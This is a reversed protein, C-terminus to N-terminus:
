FEDVSQRLNKVTKNHMVKPYSGHNKLTTHEAKTGRILRHAPELSLSNHNGVCKQCSSRLITHSAYFTTLWAEGGIACLVGIEIGSTRQRTGLLSATAILLLVGSIVGLVIQTWFGIRGQRLLINAARQVAPPLSYLDSDRTTSINTIESQKDRM